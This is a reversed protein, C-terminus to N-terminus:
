RHKKSNRYELDFLTTILDTNTNNQGKVQYYTCLPEFNYFFDFCPLEKHFFFIMFGVMKCVQSKWKFICASSTKVNTLTMSVITFKLQKYISFSAELQM